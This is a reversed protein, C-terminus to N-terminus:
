CDQTISRLQNVINEVVVLERSDPQILLPVATARWKRETFGAYVSQHGSSSAIAAFVTQVKSWHQPQDKFQAENTELWLPSQGYREWNQPSYVIWGQMWSWRINKYVYTLSVERGEPWTEAALKGRASEFVKAPLTPLTLALQAWRRDQLEVASLPQLETMVHDYDEWLSQMQLLDCWVDCLDGRTTNADSILRKLLRRGSVVEIRKDAGAYHSVESRLAAVRAEPAVFLLLGGPKLLNLYSQPQNVTLGAWFKLEVVLAVKGSGDFCVLDPQGDQGFLHQVGVRSLEESWCFESNLFSRFSALVPQVTLVYELGRTAINEPKDRFGAHLHSLLM